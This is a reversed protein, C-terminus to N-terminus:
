AKVYRALKDFQFGAPSHESDKLLEQHINELIKSKVASSETTKAKASTSLLTGLGALAAVGGAIQAAFGRRDPTDATKTTTELESPQVNSKPNDNSDM